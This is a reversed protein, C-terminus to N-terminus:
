KNVIIKIWEYFIKKFREQFWERFKLSGRRIDGNVPYSYTDIEDGLYYKFCAFIKEPTSVNGVSCLFLRFEDDLELFRIVITFNTGETIIHYNEINLEDHIQPYYTFYFRDSLNDKLTETESLKEQYHKLTDLAADRWASVYDNAKKFVVINKELTQFYQKSHTIVQSLDENIELKQADILARYILEKQKESMFKILEEINEQDAEELADIYEAREDDRVVFPFDGNRLFILSALTRAVRGNGDQFPHIQTFRHHLFAAEVEPSVNEDKHKQHLELLHEMENPVQEPPCYEHLTKDKQLPNNPWKKWDGKILPIYVIKGDETIAETKDQHRTFVQHMQRIYTLTLQKNQAVYDMLGEIVEQQDKLIETLHNPGLNTSGERIYKASIGYKILTKTIGKTLTYLGEIKGTEIAWERKVEELIKQLTGEPTKERVDKWEAELARLDQDSYSYLEQPIDEIPHWKYDPM